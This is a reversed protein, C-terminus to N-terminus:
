LAEVPEEEKEEETKTGEFYDWLIRAYKYNHDKLDATKIDNADDVEFTLEYDKCEDLYLSNQSLDKWAEKADVFGKIKEYDKEAQSTLRFM